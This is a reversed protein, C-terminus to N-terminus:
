NHIDNSDTHLLDIFGDDFPFKLHNLWSHKEKCEAVIGTTEAHNASGILIYNNPRHLFDTWSLKVEELEEKQM